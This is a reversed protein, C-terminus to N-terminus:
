YLDCYVIRKIKKAWRSPDIFVVTCEKCYCQTSEKEAWLHVFMKIYTKSACGISRCCFGEEFEGEELSVITNIMNM